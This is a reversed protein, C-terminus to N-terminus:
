KIPNLIVFEIRKNIAQQKKTCKKKQYCNILFDSSGHGEIELRNPEIMKQFFYRRINISRKLSLELLYDKDGRSDTHSSIKLVLDPKDVLIKIIDDIIKYNEHGIFESENFSFFLNPMDLIALGNRYKIPIGKIDISKINDNYDFNEKTKPLLYIRFMDINKSSSYMINKYRVSYKEHKTEIYLPNNVPVEFEFFGKENSSFTSYFEKSGSYYVNLIAKSIPNLNHSNIVYGNVKKLYISKKTNIKSNSLTSVSDILTIASTNTDIKSKDISLNDSFYNDEDQPMDFNLLGSSSVSSLDPKLQQAFFNASYLSILFFLKFSSM